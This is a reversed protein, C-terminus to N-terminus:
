RGKAYVGFGSDGTYIYWGNQTYVVARWKSNGKLCENLKICTSSTITTTTTTTTTSPTSTSTTSSSSLGWCSCYGTTIAKGGQETLQIFRM